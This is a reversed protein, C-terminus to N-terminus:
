ENPGKTMENRTMTRERTPHAGNTIAQALESSVNSVKVGDEARGDAIPRDAPTTSDGRIRCKRETETERDDVHMSIEREGLM